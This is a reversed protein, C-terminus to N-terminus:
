NKTETRFVVALLILAVGIAIITDLPEFHFEFPFFGLQNHIIDFIALITFILGFIFAGTIM